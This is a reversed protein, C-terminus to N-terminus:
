ENRIRNNKTGEIKLAYEGELDKRCLDSLMALCGFNTENVDGIVNEKVVIKM